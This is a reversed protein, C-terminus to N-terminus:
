GYLLYGQRRQRFSEVGISLWAGLTEGRCLAEAFARSGLVTQLMTWSNPAMERCFGPLVDQLAEALHLFAAFLPVDHRAEPVFFIGRCLQKAYRGYLPVFHTVGVRVGLRSLVGRLREALVEAPFEPAGLLQFPTPTGIGISWLGMEGLVGTIVAARVATPTPLNPSPPFWPLGTEEWTMTRRWGRMPVVTLSCRRGAVAPLWGEANLMVALEGLTCGHRYPIPLMGVFSRFATDLVAGEVISGGLPNPRDLVYLPIGSQACAEMVVALTSVYTYPRIGVDQLEVVVADVGRLLRESPRRRPGYLSYLPLGMLTDDPVPSGAAATGWFGHEPAWVAVIRFYQRLLELSLRGDPLRAAAHTLVALSRSRLSDRYLEVFREVGLQVRAAQAATGLLGAVCAVTWWRRM